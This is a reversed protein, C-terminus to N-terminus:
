YRGCASATSHTQAAPPVNRPEAGVALTALRTGGADRAGASASMRVIPSRPKNVPAVVTPPKAAIWPESWAM